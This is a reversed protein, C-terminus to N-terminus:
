QDLTTPQTVKRRLHLAYFLVLGLSAPSTVMVAEIWVATLRIQNLLESAQASPLGEQYFWEHLTLSVLTPPNDVASAPDVLILLLLQSVLGVLLTNRLSLWGFRAFLYGYLQGFILLCLLVVVTVLGGVFVLSEWLAQFDERDRPTYAFAVSVIVGCILATLGAMTVVRLASIIKERM